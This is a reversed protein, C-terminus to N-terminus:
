HAQRMTCVEEFKNYGEEFHKIFGSVYKDMNQAMEFGLEGSVIRELMQEVGAAFEKVGKEM